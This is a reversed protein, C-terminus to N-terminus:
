HSTVLSPFRQRFFQVILSYVGRLRSFAPSGEFIKSYRIVPSGTDIFLTAHRQTMAGSIAVSNKRDRPSHLLRNGSHM